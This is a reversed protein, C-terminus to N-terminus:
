GVKSLFKMFEMDREDMFGPLRGLFGGRDSNSTCSAVASLLLVYEAATVLGM